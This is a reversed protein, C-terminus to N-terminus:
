NRIAELVEVGNMGPLSLDLLVLDVPQEELLQLAHEGSRVVEVRCRKSEFKNQYTDAVMQDDDVILIKKPKAPTYIRKM